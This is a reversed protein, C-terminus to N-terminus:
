PNRGMENMGPGSTYILQRFVIKQASEQTFSNLHTEGM